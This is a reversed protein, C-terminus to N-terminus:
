KELEAWILDITERKLDEKNRDLGLNDAIVLLQVELLRKLSRRTLFLKKLFEKTDEKEVVGEETEKYSESPFMENLRKIDGKSLKSNMKGCNKNDLTLECPFAYLMISDMDIDTVDHSDKKFMLINNDVTTKGWGLKKFYDYVKPVDWKVGRLHEHLLNLSHGFEHLVVRHSAEQWGLNMTPLNSPIRFIDTGVYSWSGLKPDFSIRISGGKTVQFLKLGPIVERLKSVGDRVHQRQKESGGIFSYKIEKEPDHYKGRSSIARQGKNEVTEDVTKIYHIKLPETMKTRRELDTQLLSLPLFLTLM